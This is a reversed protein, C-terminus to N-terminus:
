DKTSSSPEGIAPIGLAQRLAPYRPDDRLPAISPDFGVQKAFYDRQHLARQFWHVAADLDGRRAHVAALWFPSVGARTQLVPLPDGVAGPAHLMAEGLLRFPQQEPLRGFLDAAAQRNGAMLETVGLNFLSSLRNPSLSLAEQLSRRAAPLDGAASQLYGLNNWAWSSLPDLETSRRTAEIGEPLRGIVALLLGYSRHTDSDGPALSLAHELDQQAAQWQWLLTFRLLGRASYARPLTPDLQVAREAAALAVAQMRLPDEVLNPTQLAAVAAAALEAQAPAYDPALASAKQFAEIAQLFDDAQGRIAFQRGLLYWQYADAPLPEAVAQTQDSAVPRSPKGTVGSGQLEAQVAASIQRYLQPAQGLEGSFRGSWLQFGSDSALLRVSLQLQEGSLQSSGEVLYSVKLKQGLEQATLGADRLAFSSTRGSVKLGQVQGLLEILAETSGDALFSHNAGASHDAFPLVAISNDRLATDAPPTPRLWWLLALALVLLLGLALPRWARWREASLAAASSPKTSSATSQASPATNTAGSDPGRALTPRTDSLWDSAQTVQDNLPHASASTPSAPVAFAGAGVILAAQDDSLEELLQDIAEILARGDAPRLAPDKALVSDLLAQLPTLATPLTPARRYMHQLGITWGDDGDFPLQGILLWYLVVGLSYLDARGDIRDGRLQEPSMYAPTGLSVGAGTLSRQANVSAAIGFDSLLCSGDSRLLINEPKVDRHVVGNLHAYALAEAVDRTIKLAQALTLATKAREVLTGAAEYGMAIYAGGPCEGVEHIAVIKPHHLQAALRAERIFRERYEPQAALAPLLIKLAVPRSLSLQEGLLVYSMGGSGLNREIRYGPIEIM